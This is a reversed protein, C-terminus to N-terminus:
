HGRPEAGGPAGWRGEFEAEAIIKGQMEEELRARDSGPNLRLMGDLAYLHFRYRHTEGGPPKPGRYGISGFDNKGQAAPALGDVTGNPPLAEPLDTTETSLNWLLWHAFSGRPADPDEVILALTQATSPVDAIQLPPPIDEGAATFRAPMADGDAFAPSSLQM